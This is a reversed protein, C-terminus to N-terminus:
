FEIRLIQIFVSVYIKTANMKLLARVCTCTRMKREGIIFFANIYYFLSIHNACILQQEISMRIWYLFFNHLTISISILCFVDSFRILLSYIISFEWLSYDLAYSFLVNCDKTIAEMSQQFWDCLIRHLLTGCVIFKTIHATNRSMM